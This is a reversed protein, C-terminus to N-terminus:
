LKEPDSLENWHLQEPDYDEKGPDHKLYEDNTIWNEISLLKWKWLSHSVYNVIVGDCPFGNWGTKKVENVNFVFYSKVRRLKALALFFRM